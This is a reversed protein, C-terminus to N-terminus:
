NSHQKSTFLGTAAILLDRALRRTCCLGRKKIDLFLILRPESSPNAARHYFTDDFALTHGDRWHLREGDVEIYSEVPSSLSLHLRVGARSLGIHPDIVAGPRLLSLMALQVDPYEGLLRVITPTHKHAEPTIEGYWKIYFRFWKNDSTLYTSFFLDNQISGMPATMAEDRIAEWENQFASVEPWYLSDPGSVDLVGPDGNGILVNLPALVFNLPNYQIYASPVVKGKHREIETCVLCTLLAYVVVVVLVFRNM